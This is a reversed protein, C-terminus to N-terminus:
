SIQVPGTEWSWGLGVPSGNEEITPLATDTAPKFLREYEQDFSSLISKTTYAAASPAPVGLRGALLTEPTAVQDHDPPSTKNPDDLLSLDPTEATVSPTDMYWRALNSGSSAGDDFIMNFGLNNAKSAPPKSTSAATLYVEQVNPIRVLPKQELLGEGTLFSVLEASFAAGLLPEAAKPTDSAMTNLYSSFMSESFAVPDKQADELERKRKLANESLPPPPPPLSEQVVTQMDDTQMEPVAIDQEATKTAAKKVKPKVVKNASDVTPAMAAPTAAESPTQKSQASAGKKANKAKSQGAGSKGDSPLAKKLPAPPSDLAIPSAYTGTGAASNPESTNGPGASKPIGQVTASAPTAGAAPTASPSSVRKKKTPPPKLDELKLGAKM